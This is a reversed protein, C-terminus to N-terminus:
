PYPQAPTFVLTAEDSWTFTGEPLGSLASEVSPKNMPQNFYFTIPSQHGIVSNLPPDTEILAPPSTQQAATSSEVTPTAATFGPLQPAAGGCSALILSILLLCNLTLSFRSKM